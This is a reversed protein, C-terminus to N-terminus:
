SKEYDVFCKKKILDMLFPINVNYLWIDQNKFYKVYHAM